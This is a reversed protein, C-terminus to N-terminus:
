SSPVMLNSLNKCRPLCQLLVEPRAIPSWINLNQAALRHVRAFIVQKLNEETARVEICTCRSHQQRSCAGSSVNCSPHFPTQMTCLNAVPTCNDCKHLGTKHVYTVMTLAAAVSLKCKAIDSHIHSENHFAALSATALLQHANHWQDHEKAGNGCM